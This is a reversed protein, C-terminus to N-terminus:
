IGFSQLGALAAQRIEPQHEGVGGSFVIAEAGGLLALYAGIYKKLQRVYVALALRANESSSKLLDRPSASEGSVGLLGAGHNFLEHVDLNRKMLSLVVGPDLDGPRTGMVLGALPTMGMSTDIPRGDLIASASCGSGLQLTIARGTRRGLGRWMAAHALGHFGY